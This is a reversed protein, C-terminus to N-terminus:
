PIMFPYMFLFVVMPFTMVTSELSFDALKAKSLQEIPNQVLVKNTLLQLLLVLAITVTCIVGFLSSFRLM